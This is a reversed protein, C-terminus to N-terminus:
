SVPAGRTIMDRMTEGRHAIVHVGTLIGIRPHILTVSQRSDYM